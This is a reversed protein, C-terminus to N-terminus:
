DKHDRAPHYTSKKFAQVVADGILKASVSGSIEIEPMGQPGIWPNINNNDFSRIKYKENAIDYEVDVVRQNREWESMGRANMIKKIFRNRAPFDFDEYPPPIVDFSRLGEEVAFGIKEASAESELEEVLGSLTSARQEPGYDPDLQRGQQSEQMVYYKGKYEFVTVRLYKYDTFNSRRKM